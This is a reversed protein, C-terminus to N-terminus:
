RNHNPGWKGTSQWTCVTTCSECQTSPLHEGPCHQRM